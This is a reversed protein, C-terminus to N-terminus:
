LIITVLLCVQLHPAGGQIINIVGFAGISSVLYSANCYHVSRPQWRSGEQLHRTAKIIPIARSSAQLLKGMCETNRSRLGDGLSADFLFVGVHQADEKTIRPFGIDTLTLITGLGQIANTPAKVGKSGEAQHGVGESWSAELHRLHQLYITM